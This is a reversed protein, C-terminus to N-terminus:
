PRGTVLLIGRRILPDAVDYRATSEDAVADDLLSTQAPDGTRRVSM